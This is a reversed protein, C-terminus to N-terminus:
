RAIRSLYTKRIETHKQCFFCLQPSRIKAGKSDAFLTINNIDRQLLTRIVKEMLTKGLGQGQFLLLHLGDYLGLDKLYRISAHVWITMVALLFTSWNVQYSPDVLVDWITANFAHDSTARAMGILQKREEGETLYSRCTCESTWWRSFQIEAFLRRILIHPEIKNVCLVWYCHPLYRNRFVSNHFTAYCGLLQKELVSSNKNSTQTAMRGIFNVNCVNINAVSCIELSIVYVQPAQRLWFYLKVRCSIDFHKQLLIV